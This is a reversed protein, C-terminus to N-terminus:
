AQHSAYELRCRDSVTCLLVRGRGVDKTVLLPTAIDLQAIVIPETTTIIPEDSEEEDDKKASEDTAPPAVTVKWWKTFRVDPFDGHAEKQFRKLWPLKLSDNLVRVGSLFAKDNKEIKQLKAPLLPHQSTTLLRNYKESEVKDGLAIFLGGGRNVFSTLLSATKEDVRPVNALFVVEPKALDNETLRDWRIVTANVWLAPSGLPTLAPLAFFLKMKLLTLNHTAM